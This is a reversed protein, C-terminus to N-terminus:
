ASKLLTQASDIVSQPAKLEELIRIQRLVVERDLPEKTPPPPTVPQPLRPM